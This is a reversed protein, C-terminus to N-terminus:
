RQYKISRYICLSSGVLFMQYNKARNTFKQAHIIKITICQLAFRWTKFPERSRRTESARSASRDASRVRPRCRSGAPCVRRASIIEAATPSSRSGCFGRASPVRTRRTQRWWLLAASAPWRRRLPEDLCCRSLLLLPRERCKKETYVCHSDLLFVAIRPHFTRIYTRTRM